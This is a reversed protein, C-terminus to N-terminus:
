VILKYCEGVHHDLYRHTAQEYGAPPDLVEGRITYGVTITKTEM